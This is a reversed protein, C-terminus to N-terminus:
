PYATAQLAAANAAADTGAVCDTVVSIHHDLQHMDAATYLVWVNTAFGTIILSDGARVDLGNLVNALDTYLFVSVCPQRMLTDGTQSTLEPVIMVGRTAEICHRSEAGDLEHGCRALFIM